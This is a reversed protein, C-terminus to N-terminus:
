CEFLFLALVDLRLHFPQLQVGRFSRMREETTAPIHSFRRAQPSCPQASSTPTEEAVTRLSIAIQDLQTKQFLGVGRGAPHRGSLTDPTHPGNSAPEWDRRPPAGRRQNWAAKRIKRDPAAAQWAERSKDPTVRHAATAVVGLPSAACIRATCNTCVLRRVAM